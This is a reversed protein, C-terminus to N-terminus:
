QGTEIDSANYFEDPELFCMLGQTIGEAITEQENVLFQRDAFMFGIEIIAVPTDVSIERFTHYSTMDETLGFHRELGTVSGYNNIVCRVLAEDAGRLVRSSPGAANYGTGGFGYNQCDNTHISLLADARYNNLRDDFENLLDVEYGRELLKEVVLRAVNTNIQLETLEPINDSNDDCVAGPDITFSDEQPPGSHGAIIGVKRQVEATPLPTSALVLSGSPTSDVVRLQQRFEESLSEDPTWYSFITAVLLAALLAISVYKFATWTERLLGSGNSEGAVQQALRQNAWAQSGVMDATMPDAREKFEPTIPARGRSGGTSRTFDTVLQDLDDENEFEPLDTM